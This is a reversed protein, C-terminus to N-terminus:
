ARSVFFTEPRFISFKLPFAAFVPNRAMEIPQATTSGICEEAPRPMPKNSSEGPQLRSRTAGISESGHMPLSLAPM